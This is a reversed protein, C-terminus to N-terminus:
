DKRTFRMPPASGQEIDLAKAGGENAEFAAGYGLPGGLLRFRTPSLPVLVFEKGFLLVKLRGGEASVVAKAGVAEAVYTGALRALDADPLRVPKTEPLRTPFPPRRIKEVCSTRLERASGRRITEVMLDYICEDGILGDWEHAGHPVVVNRANPLGAAVAEAHAPPTVPDLTGSLLLAEVESRVPQNFGAPVPARPWVDCAAKQQRYRYDRLFTGQSRARADGPDIWPLDEACTISLYLGTGIGNVINVRSFLAQEAAPAFDGAAAAHVVAPVFGATPPSYLMYRITEAFLDRSVPVQAPEGTKPHMVTATAAQKSLRALATALDRAPDPFAAHCDPEQACEAFLGEIARQADRAFDLPVYDTPGIVGALVATRVSTPHLRLMAQAARTGYSAGFIDLGGYGLAQRVEELDDAFVDTTYKTLDASKELRTRCRRVAELPLFDGMLRDLRGEPGFLDCELPNSAGTGRQDVLLIDRNERLRAFGAAMGAAQATAPAGPGGALFVIPDPLAGGATAPVVVVNVPIKRGSPAARDELVEVKGCRAPGLGKVECPELRASGAAAVASTKGPLPELDIRRFFIEAGESQILIKGGTLSSRTGENVVTGNVINTVRDGDAIVELRTWGGSPSEVDQKGRFGLRDQWDPDRGFWNIRGSDFERPEGKPDYVPEGDRDTGARATLRPMQRQGGADYGAVLIFDGVGGEIVQAEVSRMWAGNGDAGTNGDPGQGHVLVGSDRAANRRQGWTLSGWRFEVVLRYDRYAERTVLGGWREGSIRIAPAGDVQDVVSFVRLPDERHSDVLWTYFRDLSKGDFLPVRGEPRIVTQAFLSGPSLAILAVLVLKRM